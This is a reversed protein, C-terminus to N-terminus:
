TPYRHIAEALGVRLKDRDYVSYYKRLFPKGLVITSEIIGL